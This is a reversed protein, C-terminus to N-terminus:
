AGGRGGSQHWTTRGASHNPGGAPLVGQKGGSPDAPHKPLFHLHCGLWKRDVPRTVHGPPRLEQSLSEVELLFVIIKENDANFGACTM